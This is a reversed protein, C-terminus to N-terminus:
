MNPEAAGRENEFTKPKESGSHMLYSSSAISIVGVVSPGDPGGLFEFKFSLTALLM